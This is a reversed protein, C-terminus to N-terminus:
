LLFPRVTKLKVIPSFKDFHGVGKIQTYSKAVLSTKYTDISGDAIQM